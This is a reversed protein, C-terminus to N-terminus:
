SKAYSHFGRRWEVGILMHIYAENQKAVGLSKM